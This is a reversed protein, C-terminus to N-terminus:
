SSCSNLKSKNTTMVVYKFESKSITMGMYKFEKSVHIAESVVFAVIIARLM